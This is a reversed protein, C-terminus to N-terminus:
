GRPPPTFQAYGGAVTRPPPGFPNGEFLAVISDRMLVVITFVGLVTGFPVFLCELGAVVLCFTRHRRRSLNAGALLLMAAMTWGCLIFFGPILIFFWGIFPPIPEPDDFAGTPEFAGTLILIGVTLHLFPICAFLALLAGVVFHFISLLKLHEDDRNM